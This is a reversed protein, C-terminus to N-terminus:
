LFKRVYVFRKGNKKGLINKFMDRGSNKEGGLSKKNFYIQM